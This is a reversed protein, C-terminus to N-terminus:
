SRYDVEQGIVVRSIPRYVTTTFHYRNNDVVAILTVFLTTVFIKKKVFKFKNYKLNYTKLRVKLSLKTLSGSFNRNRPFWQAKSIGSSLIVALYCINFINAPCNWKFLHPSWTVMSLVAFKPVGM